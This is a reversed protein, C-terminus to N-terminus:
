NGGKKNIIMEYKLTGCDWIRDMGLSQAIQWETLNKQNTIELLKHKAYNYRHYRKLYDGKKFYFYNPKTKKIFEFNSTNYVTKNEDVGSWRCDAYSIIKKPNYNKIFYKLLKEFGGVVTYDLLSYFRTMEWSDLESKAGLVMRQKSFTM